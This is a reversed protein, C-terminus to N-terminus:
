VASNFPPSRSFIGWKRLSLSSKKKKQFLKISDKCAWVCVRGSTELCQFIHSKDLLATEQKRLKFFYCIAKIIPELQQAGGGFFDTLLKSNEDQNKKKGKVWASTQRFIHCWWLCTLAQFLWEPTVGQEALVSSLFKIIQFFIYGTIEEQKCHHWEQSIQFVYKFYPTLIIRPLM